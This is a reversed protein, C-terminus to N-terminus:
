NLYFNTKKMKFPQEEIALGGIVSKVKKQNINFDYDFSFNEFNFVKKVEPTAGCARVDIINNDDQFIYTKQRLIKIKTLIHEIDWKGLENSDIINKNIKKDFAKKSMIISDTDCYYFDKEDLKYLENLLIERAYSTIASAIPMYKYISKQETIAEGNKFKYVGEEETIYINKDELMQGFKGYLGNLLLKCVYKLGNNKSRSAEEKLKGYKDIYTDFLDLRTKYELAELIQIHVIDYYKLVNRLDISNIYIPNTDMLVDLYENQKYMRDLKLGCRSLKGYRVFGFPLGKKIKGYIKIKVEFYRSRDNLFELKFDNKNIEIPIGWPMYHTFGAKNSYMASPYLSNVDLYILDDEIIQEVYRKNYNCIGGLYTLCSIFQYKGELEYITPNGKKDLPIDSKDKLTDLWNSFACSSSTLRDKNILKKFKEVGAKLTKVDRIAYKLLETNDKLMNNCSNVNNFNFNFHSKTEEGKLDFTKEFSALPLSILNYSDRFELFLGKYYITYSYIKGHDDIRYKKVQKNNQEQILNKKYCTSNKFYLDLEFLINFLDFKLNHYYIITTTLPKKKGKVQSNYYEKTIKVLKDFFTKVYLDYIVKNNSSIGVNLINMTFFTQKNETINKQIENNYNKYILNVKSFLKYYKLDKYNNKNVQLTETDCYWTLVNM